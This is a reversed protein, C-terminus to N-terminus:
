NGMTFGTIVMTKGLFVHDSINLQSALAPIDLGSGAKTTALRENAAAKFASGVFNQAEALDCLETPRTAKDEERIIPLPRNGQQRHPFLVRGRGHGTRGGRGRQSRSNRGQIAESGDEMSKSSDHVGVAAKGSRQTTTERIEGDELTSDEAPLSPSQNNSMDNRLTHLPVIAHGVPTYGLLYAPTSSPTLPGPEDNIAGKAKTIVGGPILSQQNIAGQRTRIIIHQLKLAMKWRFMMQKQLSM